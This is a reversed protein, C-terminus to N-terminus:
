RAHRDYPMPMRMALTMATADRVQDIPKDSILAVHRTGSKSRQAVLLELTVQLLAARVGPHENFAKMNDRGLSFYSWV